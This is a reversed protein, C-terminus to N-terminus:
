STYRRARSCFVIARRARPTATAAPPERRPLPVAAMGCFFRDPSRADAPGPGRGPDSLILVRRSPRKPGADTRGARLLWRAPDTRFAGCPCPKPEAPVGAHYTRAPAQPMLALAPPPTPREAGRGRPITRAAARGITGLTSM